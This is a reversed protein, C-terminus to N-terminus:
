FLKRYYLRIERSPEPTDDDGGIYDMKTNRLINQLDFELTFDSSLIFRVAGNLYGRDSTISENENDNTAFDYECCFEIVSGINKDIGVWFSPDRDGDDDEFSYNVGGHLGLNGMLIYNRSMVLYAGKSKARFRNLNEGSIYPGYGQSDFGVSVAPHAMTEEIIRVQIQAGMHPQWEVRSFGIINAGSYSVGIDLLDTVGIGIRQTMGGGDFLYTELYYSKGPLSGATPANVLRRPAITDAHSLCELMIFFVAAAFLIRYRSM